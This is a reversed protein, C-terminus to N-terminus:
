EGVQMLSMWERVEPANIAEKRDIYGDGSEDLQKFQNELVSLTERKM